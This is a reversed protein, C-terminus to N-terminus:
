SGSPVRMSNISGFVISPFGAGDDVKGAGTACGFPCDHPSCNNRDRTECCGAEKGRQKRSITNRLWGHHPDRVHSIVHAIQVPRTSVIVIEKAKVLCDREFRCVAGIWDSEEFDVVVLVDLEKLARRFIIPKNVIYRKLGITDTACPNIENRVADHDWVRNALILGSVATEFDDIRRAIGNSHNLILRITQRSTGVPFEHRVRANRSVNVVDAYEALIFSRGCIEIGGNQARFVGALVLKQNSVPWIAELDAELALRGRRRAEM